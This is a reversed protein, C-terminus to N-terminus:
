DDGEVRDNDKIADALSDYLDEPESKKPLRQTPPQTIPNQPQSVQPQVPEQAPQQTAPQATPEAPPQQQAIPQVPPQQQLRQTPPLQQPAQQPQHAPQQQVPPQQQAPQQPQQGTPQEWRQAAPPQAYHYQGAGQPGVGDPLPDESRGWNPVDFQRLWLALSTTVILRVANTLLSFLYGFVVIGLVLPVIMGTLMAPIMRDSYNGSSLSLVVPVLLLMAMIVFVMVIAAMILGCVFSVLFVRFFGRTDKGILEFIRDLRYGAGISEYIACRLQALMIILGAISVAVSLAMSVFGSILVGLADPIFSVALCILSYVIAVAVQLGLYVVFARAGSSICKGVDVNKQKPAADVGWATLRGWELAYGSNGFSGVIPVLSAASMVLIPKIWGKDRTLLAWSRSFYKTDNM